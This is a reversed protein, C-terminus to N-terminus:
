EITVIPNSMTYIGGSSAMSSDIKLYVYFMYLM